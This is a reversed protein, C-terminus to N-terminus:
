GSTEAFWLAGAAIVALEASPEGTSSPLAQGTQWSTRCLVDDGGDVATTKKRLVELARIAGSM